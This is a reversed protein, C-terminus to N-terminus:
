ILYQIGNFDYCIMNGHSVQFTSPDMGSDGSTRTTRHSDEQDLINYVKLLSLLIKKMLIQSCIHDYSDKLEMLFYTVTLKIKLWYIKLLKLQRMYIQEIKGLRSLRLIILPSILIAKVFLTFSTVFNTYDQCVQNTFDQTNIMGSIM